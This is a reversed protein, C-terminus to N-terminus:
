SNETDIFDLLEKLAVFSIESRNQLRDEGLQFTKAITAGQRSALGVVITGVPKDPSGGDPGAIGTIAIGYNGHFAELVGQAMECAAEPSVAGHQKLTKEKVGLIDKKASNSYASVGGLYFRSSGPHHTLLSALLGGTCSEATALTQHRDLLSKQLKQALILCRESAQLIM